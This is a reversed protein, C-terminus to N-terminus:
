RDAISRRRGFHSIVSMTGFAPRKPRDRATADKQRRCLSATPVGYRSILCRREIIGISHLRGILSHRAKNSVTGHWPSSICFFWRNLNREVPQALMIGTNFRFAPALGTPQCRGQIRTMLRAQDDARRAATAVQRRPHSRTIARRVAPRATRCRSTLATAM